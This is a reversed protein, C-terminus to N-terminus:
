SGVADEDERFALDLGRACVVLQQGRAPPVRLQDAMAEFSLAVFHEGLDQGGERPCPPHNGDVQQGM